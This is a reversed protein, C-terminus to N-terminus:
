TASPASDLGDAIEGWLGVLQTRFAIIAAFMFLAILGLILAYETMEAGDENKLDSWTKRSALSAEMYTWLRLM